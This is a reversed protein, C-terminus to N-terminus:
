HLLILESCSSYVNLLHKFLEGFRFLIAKLRNILFSNSNLQYKKNNKLQVKLPAEPRLNIMQLYNTVRTM